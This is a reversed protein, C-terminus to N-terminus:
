AVGNDSSTDPGARPTWPDAAIPPPMIAVDAMAITGEDGNDVVPDSELPVSAATVRADEDAPGNPDPPPPFTAIDARRDVPPEFLHRTDRADFELPVPGMVILGATHLDRLTRLGVMQDGGIRELVQTVSLGSSGVTTLARWQDTRIQVDQGPPNPALNVVAELPVVQRIERWEEVQPGVEHLVAAVPVPPQGSSSMPGVTFYFWGEVICALEFVAQGITTASGVSANSLEGDVLWVKGDMAESVVQLEGTQATAALLSLVDSLSFASLSGVLSAAPAEESLEHRDLRGATPEVASAATFAPALDVGPSALGIVSQGGPQDFMRDVTSSQENM